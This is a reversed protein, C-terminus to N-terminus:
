RKRRDQHCRVRTRWLWRLKPKWNVDPAQGKERSGHLLNRRGHGFTQETVSNPVPSGRRQAAVMIQAESRDPGQDPAQYRGSRQLNVANCLARGVNRGEEQFAKDKDLAEYGPCQSSFRRGVNKALRKSAAEAETRRSYRLPVAPERTQRDPSDLQSVLRYRAARCESLGPRRDSGGFRWYM